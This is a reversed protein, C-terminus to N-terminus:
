CLDEVVQVETEPGAARDPFLASALSERRFLAFREAAPLSERGPALGERDAAEGDAGKTKAEGQTAEDKAAPAFDSGGGLLAECQFPRHVHM